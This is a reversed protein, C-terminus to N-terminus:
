SNWGETEILEISAGVRDYTLTSNTISPWASFSCGSNGQGSIFEGTTPLVGVPLLQAIIGNLAVTGATNAFSLTIGQYTFGSFSEAVRQSTSTGLFSLAVPADNSTATLAPIAVLRAGGSGDGHVGVWLDYGPPIPLYISPKSAGPNVTYVAAQSPYAWQSAVTPLSTPRKNGVVVPGDKINLLPTAWFQPLINKDMAFPDCFYIPGLGFVGDAYDTVQRIEDRSRSNWSFNYSKAGTSSRVAYAGGDLFTGGEARGTRPVDANISPMPVWRMFDRTGFWMKADSM